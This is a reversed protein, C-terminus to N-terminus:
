NNVRSVVVTCNVSAILSITKTGSRATFTNFAGLGGAVVDEEDAATTANVGDTRGYIVVSADTANVVEVVSFSQDFTVTHATNATLAVTQHESAM